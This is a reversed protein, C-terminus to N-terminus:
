LKVSMVQFDKIKDSWKRAIQRGPIRKEVKKSRKEVGKVYDHEDEDEHDEVGDEVEDGDIQEDSKGNGGGPPVYELCVTAQSSLFHSPCACFLDLVPLFPFSNLVSGAQM